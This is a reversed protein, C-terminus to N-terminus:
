DWAINDWAINDWNTQDWAINDWAIDDWAVTDWAINSWNFSDWAINDWAINDWAINSWNVLTWDIGNASPDKWTLPQGYLLPYSQRAFDDSPRVGRNAFGRTASSLAAYADVLGSGSASPDPLLSMGGYSRTTGMLLAKAADPSLDPRSALLLAVTGSVVPTAQSTGSLRFYTAGNAAAVVHDAMRTDLASGPVRLSVTRRGPAVLDPKASGWSSFWALVDDGLTSTGRDDVAGVTVVYPDLGPTQVTGSSPGRNGAAAVVVIGNKWAMEVASSLVDATRSPPPPAGFSLNVVKINYTSKHAVVWGLGAIVSSVRGNGRSDIVQVDIINARAALGRYQGASATGAGAIIGAVHTGHGGPDTGPSRLGAFSASAVIRAGLDPNNAVGSDLVAVGIGAGQTQSWTRDAEVDYPFLSQPPGAPWGAPAASPPAAPGVTLDDHVYAVSALGSLAQVGAANVWGAAGGILPLAGVPTGVQGILTLAQQALAANPQAAFPVSAHEMEVIVPQATLPNASLRTSLSADIKVPATTTSTSTVTQAGATAPAAVLILSLLALLM